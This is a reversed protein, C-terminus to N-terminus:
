QTLDSIKLCTNGSSKKKTFPLFALASLCVHLCVSMCVSLCVELTTKAALFQFSLLVFLGVKVKLKFERNSAADWDWWRSGGRMMYLFWGWTNRLVDDIALLRISGFVCKRRWITTPYFTRLKDKICFFQWFLDVQFM